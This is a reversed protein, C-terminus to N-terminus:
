RTTAHTLAVRMPRTKPVRLTVRCTVQLTSRISRPTSSLRVAWAEAEVWAAKAWPVASEPPAASAPEVGARDEPDLDAQALAVRARVQRDM